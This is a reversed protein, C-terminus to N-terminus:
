NQWNTSKQKVKEIENIEARSKIIQKIGSVKPKTKEKTGSM